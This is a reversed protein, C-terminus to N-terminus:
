IESAIKAAAEKVVKTRAMKEALLESAAKVIDDEHKSVINAIEERIMKRMPAPDDYKDSYYNRRDFMVKTVELTIKNVVQKEVNNEIEKAIKEEDVGITVPVSFVSM